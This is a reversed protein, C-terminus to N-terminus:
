AAFPWLDWDATDLEDPFPSGQFLTIRVWRDSRPDFRTAGFFALKFRLIDIPRMAADILNDRIESYPGLAAIQVRRATHRHEPHDLLFAALRADPPVRRLAQVMAAVDRAVALPQEREMGPEEFREGLRPELKEESAYWFRAQAARDSFDYRLAWGYSDTITRLMDACRVTGDIRFSDGEEVAMQEALDDVLDGNVEIILTVCYEQGEPTLKAAAFRYLLDFPRFAGFLADGAFAELMALDNALQAIRRLQGPDESVWNGVLMQSKGLLSRFLGACGPAARDRSRSRALATERASVWRDLLAPHRVLFPAMGLGTANGIGFRRRLAPELSVASTGGRLRGLHEVLDVTFLRILYVTLMEARFPNAFEARDRIRDRDALGFKGNGYVATTRMLYGTAEVLAADPQRGESLARVVHDFLRVSRNARALVIESALYRGAEQLPVNAQLRAVADADPAGDHLVFTTDWEEAIVRDTRKEPPLHHGFAVLSYIREGVEVAYIAVGVGREDIDFRQRTVHWRESRMRRLLARLFSLRTQHASGLRELRMVLDPPRLPVGAFTGGGSM